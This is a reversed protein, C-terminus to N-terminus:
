TKTMLKKLVSFFVLSNISFEDDFKRVSSMEIPLEVVIVRNSLMTTCTKAMEITKPYSARLHSRSQVLERNTGGEDFMSRQSNLKLVRYMSNFITENYLGSIM